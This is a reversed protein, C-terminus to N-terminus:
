QGGRQGAGLPCGGPATQQVQLIPEPEGQRTGLEQLGELQRLSYSRPGM